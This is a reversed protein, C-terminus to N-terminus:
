QQQQQQKQKLARRLVCYPHDLLTDNHRTNNRLLFQAVWDTPHTGGTPGYKAGKLPETGSHVVDNYQQVLVALEHLAPVLTPFVEDELYAKDKTAKDTPDTAAAADSQTGHYPSWCHEELLMAVLRPDVSQSGLAM